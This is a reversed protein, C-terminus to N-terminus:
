KVQRKIRRKKGNKCLLKQIYAIRSTKKEKRKQKLIMELFDDDWVSVM